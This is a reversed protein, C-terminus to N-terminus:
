EELNTNRANIENGIELDHICAQLDEIYKGFRHAQFWRGLIVNLRFVVVPVLVLLLLRFDFVIPSGEYLAAYLLWTLFFPVGVADSYINARIVRQLVATTQSLSSKLDGSASRLREIQKSSIRAHIGIVMTIAGMLFAFVTMEIPSLLNDLLYDGEDLVFLPSMIMAGLGIVIAMRSKLIIKRQLRASTLGSKKRISATIEEMEYHTNANKASEEEWITSLDQLEM